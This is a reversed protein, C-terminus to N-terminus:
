EEYVIAHARYVPQGPSSSGFKGLIRLEDGTQLPPLVIMADAGLKRANWAIAEMMLAEDGPNAHRTLLAIIRHKKPVSQASDFVQFHPKEQRAISDYRGIQIDKAYRPIRAQNESRSACGTAMAVSLGCLFVLLNTKNM